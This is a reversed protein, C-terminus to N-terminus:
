FHKVRFKNHAVNTADADKDKLEKTLSTIPYPRKCGPALANIWFCTNQLKITSQTRKVNAMLGRHRAFDSYLAKQCIVSRTKRTADEGKRAGQKKGYILTEHKTMGVAWAISSFNSVFSTYKGDAQLASKAYQFAVRTHYIHPRNLRFSPPFSVQELAALRGYLARELSQTDFLDGIVISDLYIPEFIHSLIASQIGLVNWRALKDSCSMCISLESDLRGPKTRLRGLQEYGLRGRSVAHQPDPDVPGPQQKQKKNAYVYEALRDDSLDDNERKRKAGAHFLAKSDDTQIDAVASMSADGCPSQSVYMHFSHGPRPVWRGNENQEFYRSPDNSLHWLFGRRALVEAHCDHVLQGQRDVKSLPLCKLGSLSHSLQKGNHLVVVSALVTWEAKNSHLQPKGNKGLRDYCAFTTTAVRDAFDPIRASAM